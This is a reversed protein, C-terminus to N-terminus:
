KSQTGCCWQVGCVPRCSGLCPTDGPWSHKPAAVLEQLGTLPSPLPITAGHWARQLAGSQIWHGLVEGGCGCGTEYSAVLQGLCRPRPSCATTSAPQMGGAGAMCRARNTLQNWALPGPTGETTKIGSAPAAIHVGCVVAEQQIFAGTLETGAVYIPCDTGLYQGRHHGEYPCVKGTHLQVDCSPAQVISQVGHGHAGRSQLGEAAASASRLLVLFSKKPTQGAHVVAATM